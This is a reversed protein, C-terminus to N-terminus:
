FRRRWLGYPDGVQGLAFHQEIADALKRATAGALWNEVGLLSAVLYGNPVAVVVLRGFRLPSLTAVRLERYEGVGPRTSAFDQVAQEARAVVWADGQVPTFYNRPYLEHSTVYDAGLDILTQVLTQVAFDYILM